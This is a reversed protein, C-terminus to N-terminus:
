LEVGGEPDLRRREPEPVDTPLELRHVEGDQWYRLAVDADAPTARVQELYDLPSTPTEGNVELLLAGPQMGAEAAPGTVGTVLVGDDAPLDLAQRLDADVASVTIGVATVIQDEMGEYEIREAAEMVAPSVHISAGARLALAMADSPRSDLRIPEDRGEVEIELMGLFTSDVLDDILVRSLRADLADFVSGFLDHTMPRPLELGRRAREIAAAEARGILIPVVERADRERLLVVPAGTAAVALAAIEVEVLQSEDVSLDRGGDSVASASVASTALVAAALLRVTARPVVPM